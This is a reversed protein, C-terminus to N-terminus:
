VSIREVGPHEQMFRLAEEYAIPETLRVTLELTISGSTKTLASDTVKGGADVRIDGLDDKLGGRGAHDIYAAVRGGLGTVQGKEGVLVFDGGDLRNVHERVSLM